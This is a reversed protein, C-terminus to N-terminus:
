EEKEQTKDAMSAEIKLLQQLQQQQQELKKQQDEITRSQGSNVKSLTALASEFELLEQNPQYVIVRLVERMADTLLPRIQEHWAQARLRDQYPTSSGQSLLIKRLQNDLRNNDLQKLSEKRQSWSLAENDIWFTLWYSLDCNHEIQIDSDDSLCIPQYQHLDIESVNPKTNTDTNPYNVAMSDLLQCSSLPLVLLFLVGQKNM